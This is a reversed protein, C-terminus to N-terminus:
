SRYSVIFYRSYKNYGVYSVLEALPIHYIDEYKSALFMAVIGSLHVDSDQLKREFVFTLSLM